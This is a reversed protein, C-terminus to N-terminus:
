PIVVNEDINIKEEMADNPGEFYGEILMRTDESGNPGVEKQDLYNFLSSLSDNQSNMLHSKPLFGNDQYFPPHYEVETPLILIETNNQLQQVKNSFFQSIKKQNQSM